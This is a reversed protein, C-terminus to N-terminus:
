LTLLYLSFNSSAHRKSWELRSLADKERQKSKEWKEFGGTKMHKEEREREREKKKKKKPKNKTKEEEVV